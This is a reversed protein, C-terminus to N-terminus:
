TLPKLKEHKRSGPRAYLPLWHPRRPLWRRHMPSLPTPVVDGQNRAAISKQARVIASQLARCGLILASLELPHFPVDEYLAEENRGAGSSIRWEHENQWESAKSFVIRDLALQADLARRGSAFDAYEDRTLLLPMSDVYDVKRAEAWPSQGNSSAEKLLDMYRREVRFAHSPEGSESGWEPSFAVSIELKSIGTDEILGVVEDCMNASMGGGLLPGPDDIAVANELSALGQAIRRVVKRGFPVAEEVIPMQPSDNPGVPSEIVFGFSGHFTHGFRCANAYIM